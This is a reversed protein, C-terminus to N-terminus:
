KQRARKRSRVFSSIGFYAFLLTFCAAAAVKNWGVRGAAHARYETVLAISGIVAFVLFFLGIVELWLIHLVRTFSRATATAASLGARVFRNSGLARGSLRGLARATNESSNSRMM